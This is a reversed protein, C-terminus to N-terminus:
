SLGGHPEGEAWWTNVQGDTEGVETGGSGRKVGPDNQKEMLRVSQGDAQHDTKDREGETQRDIQRPSEAQWGRLGQSPGQGGPDTM